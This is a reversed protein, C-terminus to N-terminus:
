LREKEKIVSINQLIDHREEKKELVFYRIQPKDSTKDYNCKPLTNGALIDM